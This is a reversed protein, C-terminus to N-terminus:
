NVKQGHRIYVSLECVLFVGNVILLLLLLLLAVGIALWLLICFIIYYPNFLLEQMALQRAWNGGECMVGLTHPRLM